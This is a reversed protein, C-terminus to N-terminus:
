ETKNIAKKVKDKLSKIKGALPADLTDLYDFDIKMEKKTKYEAIAMDLGGFKYTMEQAWTNQIKISVV